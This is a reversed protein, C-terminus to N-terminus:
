STRRCTASADTARIAIAMPGSLGWPWKAIRRPGFNEAADIITRVFHVFVEPGDIQSGVTKIRGDGTQLRCKLDLRRFSFSEVIESDREHWTAPSGLTQVRKLPSSAKLDALGLVPFVKALGQLFLSPRVVSPGM